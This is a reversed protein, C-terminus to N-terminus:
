SFGMLEDVAQSYEGLNRAKRIKKLPKEGGDFMEGLYFWLEKMRPLVNGPQKLDELYNEVLRDHFSKMEERLAPGSGKGEGITQKGRDAPRDQAARYERVLAPDRLLGRGIMVAELGPFRESIRVIDQVTFLNGNYCVPHASEELFRGFAERDPEGNYFAERVRAHVTVECLPYRNYIRVLEGAEGPDRVGLRTKVSVKLKRSAEPLPEGEPMKGRQLCDFVEEFFADLRDPFQLFGAGRGRSFVTGSPCGLNLNVERYGMDALRAAAWVFPGAQNAMIQPVLAIGRNNAPALDRKEKERLGLTHNMNVFPSYYRDIGPFAEHHANRFPHGTIGEMPAFYFLM